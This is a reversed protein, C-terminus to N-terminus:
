FAHFPSLTIYACSFTDSAKELGTMQLAQILDDVPILKMKTVYIFSRREDLHVPHGLQQLRRVFNRKVSLQRPVFM